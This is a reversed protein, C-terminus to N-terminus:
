CGACNFIPWDDGDEAAAADPEVDDLARGQDGGIRDDGDVDVVVLQGHRGRTRRWGRILEALHSTRSSTRLITPEWPTSTKTSFVPTTRRM